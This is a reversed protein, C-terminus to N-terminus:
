KEESKFKPLAADVTEQLIRLHIADRLKQLNELRRRAEFYPRYRETLEADKSRAEDVVHRLSEIQRYESEAGIREVELGRVTQPDLDGSNAGEPVSDSIRLEGRLKDLQAQAIKVNENQKELEKNLMEIVAPTSPEADKGRGTKE